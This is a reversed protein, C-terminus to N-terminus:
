SNIGMKDPYEDATPGINDSTVTGSLPHFTNDSTMYFGVKGDSKRQCPLIESTITGVNITPGSSTTADAIKLSKIKVGKLYSSSSSSNAGIFVKNNSPWTGGSRAFEDNGIVNGNTDRIDLVILSNSLYTWLTRESKNPLYDDLVYNPSTNSGAKYTFYMGQSNHQINCIWGGYDYADNNGALIGEINPGGDNYDIIVNIGYAKNLTWTSGIDCYQEGTFNIWELQRYPYKTDDAWITQGNNNKIKRVKSGDPLTIATVNNMDM